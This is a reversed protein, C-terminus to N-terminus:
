FRRNERLSPKSSKRQQMNSLFCSIQCASAKNGPANCKLTLEKLYHSIKSFYINLLTSLSSRETSSRTEREDFEVQRKKIRCIEEKRKSLKGDMKCEKPFGASVNGITLWQHRQTSDRTVVHRFRQSSFYDNSM